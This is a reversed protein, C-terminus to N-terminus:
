VVRQYLQIALGDPDRVFCSAVGIAFRTRTEEIVVAGHDRLSHLTSELDDVAFVLHAADTAATTAAAEPRPADLEYLEITFGDRSVM